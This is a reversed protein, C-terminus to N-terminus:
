NYCDIFCEDTNDCQLNGDQDHAIVVVTSCKQLNTWFKTELMLDLVMRNPGIM